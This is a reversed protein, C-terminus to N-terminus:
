LVAELFIICIYLKVLLIYSDRDLALRILYANLKIIKFTALKYLGFTIDNM